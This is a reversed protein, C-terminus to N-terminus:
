SRRRRRTFWWATASTGALFASGAAVWPLASSAPPSALMIAEENTHRPEWGARKIRDNAVVWPHVLYPLVEPPADGLGTAWLIALMRQAVEYPVGPLQRRGVLAVADEHSLWGDSAVNYAGPLEERVALALASAADDLHVVQVPPAAARVVVPPHGVTVSAFVTTAGPGVVPAIRLRTVVRSDNPAAWEALMRECEADHAAPTFGPNPRLPADESLPVPNNPWAGYVAASSARVVKRVGVASAADLVHRLGDVNVRAMLAADPIAGVIAALHVVTDVGDLLPRLDTGGIDVRHFELHRARRAPDRVDLGVIRDYGAGDLLPLLRQGLLGSAGTVAVKM